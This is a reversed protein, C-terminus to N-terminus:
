VTSLTRTKYTEVEHLVKNANRIELIEIKEYQNININSKEM